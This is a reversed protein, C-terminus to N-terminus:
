VTYGDETEAVEWLEEHDGSDIIMKM